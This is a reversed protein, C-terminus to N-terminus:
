FVARLKKEFSGAEGQLGNRRCFEALRRYREKPEYKMGWAIKAMCEPCADLPHSDTEFMGNSGSMVCHYKTCHLMSFMHGTEHMAIKLTRILFLEARGGEKLRHLSWVGVRNELSAQGFVFNMTEDPYLDEATFAILAAADDPLKPRLVEDLVYGTRIQKIKWARNIRYNKLSLPEAFNEQPLIKAPLNYFATMFEATLEVANKEEPTFKGLPQIYITRREATPLTPSCNLYQEFTQGPESFTALWDMAGPKGMPEFFPEVAKMAGRLNEPAAAPAENAPPANLAGEKTTEACGSSLSLFFLSLVLKTLNRGPM